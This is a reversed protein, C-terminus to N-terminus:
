PRDKIAAQVVGQIMFDVGLVIPQHSPDSSRPQLLIADGARRLVKVTAEGDILAVVRDGDQAVPQKRVLVLDGDSIGARDMSNGVVRLLFYEHPPRALRRSVLIYDEVNQEALLPLGAAVRGVLPVRATDTRDSGTEPEPMRLLRINRAGDRREIYGAAALVDLFQMVSRPSKFGCLEQLERVTPPVGEHRFCELLREFFQLQKPTLSQGASPQPTSRSISMHEM